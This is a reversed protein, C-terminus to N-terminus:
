VHATGEKLQRLCITEFEGYPTADAYPLISVQSRDLQRLLKRNPLTSTDYTIYYFRGVRHVSEYIPAEDFVPSQPVYRSNENDWKHEM